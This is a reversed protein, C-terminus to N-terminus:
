PHDRAAPHRLAAHPGRAAALARMRELRRRSWRRTARGLRPLRRRAQAAVREAAPSAGGFYIERCRTPRRAARHRGRGPLLPGRLRVAHGVLAGRLVALFEDTRDYREDHDLWDGFRRQEADDGGTVVNLLLRGGSIRQYTAAQQAALTPSISGPGSRSWSSSDSRRASCRPRRRAVRGRVLHGDPHARRRLRARRRGPRGPGPLRDDPPRRHGDDGFAVVDRSDGATPLFWHLVVSM